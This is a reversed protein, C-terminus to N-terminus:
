TYTCLSMDYTSVGFKGLFIIIRLAARKQADGVVLRENLFGTGVSISKLEANKNPSM